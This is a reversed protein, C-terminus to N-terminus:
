LLKMEREIYKIGAKEDKEIYIEVACKAIELLQKSINNNKFSKKIYTQIDKQVKSDILPIPILKFYRKNIATLITGSCGKKLLLQFPLSKLLILATESNITESNIVFFGNSCICNEYKDTILACSGLSGEISSIIVQNKQVLRRARTPLNDGFDKLEGDIQGNSKINGLEIYRYEITDKPFYNNDYIKFVNGLLDTGNKYKKIKKILMLLYYQWYEADIRDDSFASNLDIESITKEVEFDSDGIKFKKTKPKWNDLELEMLLIKEANAYLNASEKKQDNSKLLLKEIEKQFDSSPYPIKLSNLEKANINAQNVARRKVRQLSNYGYKCNLFITLYCNQYSHESTIRVLYSAFAHEGDLLYIGTRGVFDDSNVRNFLVDFRKLKYQDFLKKSINAYKADQDDAFIGIIDDMKLIKYGINEENMAISLGYQPYSMFDKVFKNPIKQIIDANRIYFPYYYDSDIRMDGYLEDFTVESYEIKNNSFIKM